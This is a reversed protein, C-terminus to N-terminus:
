FRNKQMKTKSIVFSYGRPNYENMLEKPIDDESNM